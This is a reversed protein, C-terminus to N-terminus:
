THRSRGVEQDNVGGGGGLWVGGGEVDVGGRM